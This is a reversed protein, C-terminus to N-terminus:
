RYCLEKGGIWLMARERGGERGGEKSATHTHTHIIYACTNCVEVVIV